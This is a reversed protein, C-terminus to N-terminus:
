KYLLSAGIKYGILNSPEERSVRGKSLFRELVAERSLESELREGFNQKHKDARELFNKIREVPFKYRKELVEGSCLEQINASKSEVSIVFYAELVHQSNSWDRSLFVQEYDQQALINVNLDVFRVYKLVDNKAITKDLVDERPMTAKVDYEVIEATYADMVIGVYPDEGNAPYYEFFWFLGKTYNIFFNDDTYPVLINMAILLESVREKIAPLPIYSCEDSPARRIDEISDSVYRVITNSKKYLIAGGTRTKLFEYVSRGRMSSPISQDDDVFYANGYDLRGQVQSEGTLAILQEKAKGHVSTFDWWIYFFGAACVLIITFCGVAIKM